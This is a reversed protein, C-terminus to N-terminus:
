SCIPLPIGTLSVLNSIDNLKVHLLTFTIVEYFINQTFPPMEKFRGHKEVFLSLQILLVFFFLLQQLLEGGKEASRSLCTFFLRCSTVSTYRNHLLLELKCSVSFCGNYSNDWFHQLSEM